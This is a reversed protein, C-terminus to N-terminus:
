RDEIAHHGCTILFIANGDVHFLIRLDSSARAEWINKRGRMKQVRLGPHRPNHRFRKLAAIIAKREIRTLKRANRKFEDSFHIKIM